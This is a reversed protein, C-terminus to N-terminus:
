EFHKPNKTNSLKAYFICLNLCLCFAFLYVTKLQNMEATPSSGFTKPPQNLRGVDIIWTMEFHFSRM